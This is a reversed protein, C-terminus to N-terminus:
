LRQSTTVLTPFIVVGQFRHPPRLPAKTNSIKKKYDIAQPRLALRPGCGFDLSQNM